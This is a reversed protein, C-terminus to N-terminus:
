LDTDDPTQTGGKAPTVDIATESRRIQKLIQAFSKQSVESKTVGSLGARDLIDRATKLQDSPYDQQGSVHKAVVEAAFLASLKLTIQPNPLYPIIKKLAERVNTKGLYYTASRVPDRKALGISNIADEPTSGQALLSVFRTEPDNLERCADALWAPTEASHKIQSM